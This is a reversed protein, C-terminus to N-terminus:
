FRFSRHRSHNNVAHLVGAGIATLFWAILFSVEFFVARIIGWVVASNNVGWNEVASMIGGYLMVYLGLWLALAWGFVIICVGILNLIVEKM